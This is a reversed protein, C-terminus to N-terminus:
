PQRLKEINPLIDIIIRVPFHYTRRIYLYTNMIKFTKFSAYLQVIKVDQKAYYRNYQSPAMTLLPIDIIVIKETRKHRM